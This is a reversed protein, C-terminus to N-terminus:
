VIDAWTPFNLIPKWYLINLIGHASRRIFSFQVLRICNNTMHANSLPWIKISHSKFASFESPVWSLFLKPQFIVLSPFISKSNQLHNWNEYTRMIVDRSVVKWLYADSKWKCSCGISKLFFKRNEEKKHHIMTWIAKLIYTKNAKIM